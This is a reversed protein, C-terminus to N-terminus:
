RGIEAVREKIGEGRYLWSMETRTLYNWLHHTIPLMDKPCEFTDRIKRDVVLWSGDGDSDRLLRLEQESIHLKTAVRQYMDVETAPPPSSGGIELSLVQRAVAARGRVILHRLKTAVTKYMDEM